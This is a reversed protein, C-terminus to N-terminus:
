KIMRRYQREDIIDSLWEPCIDQSTCLTFRPSLTKYSEKREKYNETKKYAESFPLDKYQSNKSKFEEVVGEFFEKHKQSLRMFELTNNLAFDDANKYMSYLLDGKNEKDMKKYVDIPIDFVLISSKGQEPFKALHKLDKSLYIVKPFPRARNNETFNGSPKKYKEVLLGYKKIEPINSDLTTHYVRITKNRLIIM